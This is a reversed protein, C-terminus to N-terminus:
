IKQEGAQATNAVGASEAVLRERGDVEAFLHATVALREAGDSVLVRNGDSSACPAQLEVRAGTAGDGPQGGVHVVLALEALPTAGPPDQQHPAGM